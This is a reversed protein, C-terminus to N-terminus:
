RSKKSLFELDAQDQKRGLAKKNKILENLGIFFVETRGFRGQKKHKWVNAFACGEISTLLDIRMPEYGLQIVEKKQSFDDASLKLSGFGFDKLAKLINNGNEVSAEVLIDLDKTYRPRGYFGIAFAGVICYKVKHKNFLKLLEEYDAEVKM